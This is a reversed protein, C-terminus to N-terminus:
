SGLTWWLALGLAVLGGLIVGGVACGVTLAAVLPTGRRPPAPRRPEGTVPAELVVQPGGQDRIAPVSPPRPPRTRVEVERGSLSGQLQSAAPWDVGDCWRSLTAGAPSTGLWANAADALEGATPRDAPAHDLCRRALRVVNDPVGILRALRNDLHAASREPSIALAALGRLSPDIHFPEGSLGEYLCCGLGYVDVEPGTSRRVFREPAMYPASGVIVDTQTQALRQEGAFVAIGFDLLRVQGHRGIRINSPKIDRHVIRLPVGTTGRQEWATQLASAVQGVVDVLAVTGIPPDQRFCTELDLGPVYETVMAPRQDIWLLDIADVVTGHQVQGLLHAEDRLRQFADRPLDDLAHLVKVAVTSTLGGPSTRTARYVEGFGGSGLLPGLVLRPRRNAM